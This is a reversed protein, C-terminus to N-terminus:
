PSKLKFILRQYHKLKPEGDDSVELIIHIDKKSDKPVTFSAKNSTEDFIKIFQDMGSPDPYHWWWFYVNDGDLDIADAHLEVKLGPQVLIEKSVSKIVPPHNADEYTKVSWDMRAAFDNQTALCWRWLAKKDNNDDFADRWYNGQVPFYRGGWGGYEYNEYAKLGNDVFGLFAPTDGESINNQPYYSGLPGHNQRINENLWAESMVEPFPNHKLPEKVHYNWTLDFSLAEIIMAEQINDRIWKGAEDQFSVCYIRVRSIARDFENPHHEKLKWLSHAVTNAGGWCNIHLPAKEDKLLERLILDSGESDVYPAGGTLHTPDENGLVTISKLSEVTPYDARHLLLNEYVQEYKNYVENVWDLGHGNKQWKSNTAIIGRIDMDSSYLLFRVFSSRDDVEGDQTVIVIPKDMKNSYVLGNYAITLLLLFSTGKIM